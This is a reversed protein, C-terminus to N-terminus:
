KAPKDWGKSKAQKRIDGALKAYDGSGAGYARDEGGHDMHAETALRMDVSFQDRLAKLQRKVEAETDFFPVDITQSELNPIATDKFYTTVFNIIDQVHYQEHQATLQSSWYHKRAPAGKYASTSKNPDLDDAVQQWNTENIDSDAPGSIDTRGPKSTILWGVDVYFRGNMDAVDDWWSATTSIDYFGFKARTAGFNEPKDTVWGANQSAGTGFAINTRLKDDAIIPGDLKARDDINMALKARLPKAVSPDDCLHTLNGSVLETGDVAVTISDKDQVEDDMGLKKKLDSIIKDLGSLIDPSFGRGLDGLLNKLYDIEDSYEEAIEDVWESISEGVDAAIDQVADITEGFWNSTGEVAEEFAEVAEGAKEEIWQSADEVGEEVWSAADEVAEEAWDIGEEVASATEDYTEEIWESADDVGEEVWAAADESTEEIWDGAAEAQEGAWDTVDDWMDYNAAAMTENGPVTVQATTQEAKPSRAQHLLAKIQALKKAALAQMQTQIPSPRAGTAKGGKLAGWTAPGVVGDPQLRHSVQFQVVARRTQPGFIGDVVLNFGAQNLRQQLDRVEPSRSGFRLLPDAARQIINQFYHNGHLRQIGLAARHHPQAGREYTQLQSLEATSLDVEHEASALAEQDESRRYVSGEAISKRLRRGRKRSTRGMM